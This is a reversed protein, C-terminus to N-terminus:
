SGTGPRRRRQYGFVDSVGSAILERVTGDVRDLIVTTLENGVSILFPTLLKDQGTEIATSVATALQGTLTLAAEGLLGYFKKGIHKGLNTYLKGLAASGPPLANDIGALTLGSGWPGFLVNQTVVWKGGTFEVVDVKLDYPDATGDMYGDFEVYVSTLYDDVAGFVDGEAQPSAFDCRFNYVNVTDQGSADKFRASAVLIAGNAVTM